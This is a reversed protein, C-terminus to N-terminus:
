RKDRSTRVVNARETLAEGGSLSKPLLSAPARFADAGAPYRHLWVIRSLERLMIEASAIRQEPDRALGHLLVLDLENPCNERLVRPPLMPAHLASSFIEGSSGGEFPLRGTIAEYLVVSASYIDTRADLSAGTIQEPSMYSPTGLVVSSKTQAARERSCIGFDIIKLTIAGDRAEELLLNRPKIDRHVIGHRHAAHLGTMLQRGLELTAPISLAGGQLKEALTQGHVRELVIYPSGDTLRGADVLTPLHPSQALRYVLLELQLRDIGREQLDDLAHRVVKVAVEHQRIEDYAAYVFSTAGHSILDLVCYRDSIRTGRELSHACGTPSTIRHIGSRRGGSSPAKESLGTATTPEASVYEEM